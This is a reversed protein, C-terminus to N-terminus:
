RCMKGMCDDSKRVREDLGKSSNITAVIMEDISLETM